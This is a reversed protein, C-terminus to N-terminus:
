YPENKITEFFDQIDLNSQFLIEFYISEENERTQPFSTLPLVVGKKKEALKLFKLGQLILLAQNDKDVTTAIGTVRVLKLMQEVEFRWRFEGNAM